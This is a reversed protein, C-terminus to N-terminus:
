QFLRVLWKGDQKIVTLTETRKTYTAKAADTLWNASLQVTASTADASSKTVKVVVLDKVAALGKNKAKSAAAQEAFTAQDTTTLSAHTANDLIGRADYAAFAKMMAMAAGDPTSPASAQTWILYGGVGIIAVAVVSMLTVLWRRQPKPALPTVGAVADRSVPEACEPCVDAGPALQAGCKECQM